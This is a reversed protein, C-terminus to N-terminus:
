AAPGCRTRATSGSFSKACTASSTRSVSAPTCGAPRSTSTATRLACERVPEVHHVRERADRASGRRPPRDGARATPVSRLRVAGASVALLAAQPLTLQQAGAELLIDPRGGRDRLRPQRLVGPEHVRQPDLAEVERACAQDRPVGRDGETRLTQSKKKIYLNRVLQQTITSGGQVVHGAQIDAYLARVIGPWDLAGHKYFRRDEIAVTAKPAWNSIQALDVPQRNQRRRSDVRAVVRGGRLHLLEPRRRGTQAHELDCSNMWVAAGTFGSWSALLACHRHVRWSSASGSGGTGPASRRASRLATSCSTDPQPAAEGRPPPTM